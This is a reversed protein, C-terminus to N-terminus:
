FGISWKSYINPKLKRGTDAANDSALIIDFYLLGPFPKFYM